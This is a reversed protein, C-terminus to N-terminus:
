LSLDNGSKSDLTRQLSKEFVAAAIAIIASIIILGLGLMVGGAIDDEIRRQVINIYGEAGVLFAVIIVACYKITRLAKVSAHSPAKNKELYGLLQFAQYLGVFFPISGLYVYVLFPDKLYIESLEANANRGELQPMWLLATLAGIGIFVIATQLLRSPGKNM